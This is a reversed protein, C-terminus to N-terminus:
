GVYNVLFRVTVHGAAADADHVCFAQWPPGESAGQGVVSCNFQGLDYLGQYGTWQGDVAGHAEGSIVAEGFITSRLVASAVNAAVDCPVGNATFPTGFESPGLKKAIKFATQYPMQITITGDVGITGTGDTPGSGTCTRTVAYNVSTSRPLTAFGKDSRACAVALWPSGFHSPSYKLCKGRRVIDRAVDLEHKSEFFDALTHGAYPALTCGLSALIGVFKAPTKQLLSSAWSCALGLYHESSKPDAALASASCSADDFLELTTTNEGAAGLIDATLGCVLEDTPPFSFKQPVGFGDCLVYQVSAQRNYFITRGLRHSAATPFAQYCARATRRAATAAHSTPPFTLLGVCTSGSALACAVVRTLVFKWGM